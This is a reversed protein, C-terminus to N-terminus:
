HGSTRVRIYTVASAGAAGSAGRPFNFSPPSDLPISLSIGLQINRVEAHTDSAAMFDVPFNITEFNSLGVTVSEPREGFM